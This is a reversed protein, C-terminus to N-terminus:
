SPLRRFFDRQYDITGAQIYRQYFPSEPEVIIVGARLPKILGLNFQPGTLEVIKQDRDQGWAHVMLEFPYNPAGFPHDLRFFGNMKEYGLTELCAAAKKCDFYGQSVLEAYLRWLRLHEKLGIAIQSPQHLETQTQRDYRILECIGSLALKRNYETFHAM